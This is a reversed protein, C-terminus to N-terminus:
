REIKAHCINGYYQIDLGRIIKINERGGLVLWMLWQWRSSALWNMRDELCLGPILRLYNGKLNGKM